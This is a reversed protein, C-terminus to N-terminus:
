LSSPFEIIPKYKKKKKESNYYTLIISLFPRAATCDPATTERRKDTYNSKSKIGPEDQANNWIYLGGLKLHCIKFRKTISIRSLFATMEVIINSPIETNTEKRKNKKKNKNKKKKDPRRMCIFM